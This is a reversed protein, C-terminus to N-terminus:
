ILSDCEKFKELSLIEDSSEVQYLKANGIFSAWATFSSPPGLLYDCESMLFHDIHVDEQSLAVKNQFEVKYIDFNFQDDNTFLIFSCNGSLIDSIQNMYKIYTSDDYYYIGDRYTKYDGRRLHIGIIKSNDNARVFYKNRYFDKDINPVFQKKYEERYKKVLKNARFQFGECFVLNNKFPYIEESRDIYGKYELNFNVVRFIKLSWNIKLIIRLITRSLFNNGHLKLNPYYKQYQGFHLNCFKINYERCYADLHVHHM